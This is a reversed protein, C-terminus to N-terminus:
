KKIMRNAFYVRRSLLYIIIFSCQWALLAYVFYFVGIYVIQYFIMYSFYNHLRNNVKIISMRYIIFFIIAMLITCITGVNLVFSGVFTHFSSTSFNLNMKAIDLSNTGGPFFPFISSFGFLYNTGVGRYVDSFWFTSMGLYDVISLLSDSGEGFRSLTIIVFFFVTASLLAIFSVKFFKPILKFSFYDKFFAVNFVLFLLWRMIGDRGAITLNMVAGSISTLMLMYFFVDSKRAIFLRYFSMFIAFIPTIMGITAFYGILGYSYFGKTEDGWIAAERAGEFTDFSLVSKIGAISLIITSAGIAILIVSVQKFLRESIQFKNLQFRNGHYVIPSMFLFLTIIHYVVADIYVKDFSYMNNYKVWDLYFHAIVSIFYLGILLTSANYGYRKKNFSFWTGFFLIYLIVAFM